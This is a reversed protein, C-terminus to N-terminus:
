RIISFQIMITIRYRLEIKALAYKYLRILTIVLLLSLIFEAVFM